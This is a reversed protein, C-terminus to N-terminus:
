LNRDIGRDSAFHASKLLLPQALDSGDVFSHPLASALAPSPLSAEEEDVALALASTFFAVFEEFEEVEFEEVEFEVASDCRPRWADSSWASLCLSEPRIM